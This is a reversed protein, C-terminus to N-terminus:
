GRWLAGLLARVGRPRAAPPDAPGGARAREDAARARARSARPPAGPAAGAPDTGPAPPAPPAAEPEELFLVRDTGFTPAAEGEGRRRPLIRYVTGTDDDELIRRAGEEGAPTPVMYALAHCGPCRFRTRRKSRYVDGCRPCREHHGGAWRGTLPLTATTKTVPESSGTLLVPGAATAAAAPLRDTACEGGETM